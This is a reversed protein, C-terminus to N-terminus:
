GHPGTGASVHDSGVDKAGLGGARCLAALGDQSTGTGGQANSEVLEVELQRLEEAEPHTEIWHRLLIQCRPGAVRCYEGAFEVLSRRAARRGFRDFYAAAMSNRRGIERPREMALSRCSEGDAGSSLVAPWTRCSRTISPICRAKPTAAHVVGLPLVEHALAGAFSRVGSRRLSAKFDPQEAASSATTTSLRAKRKFGLLMLDVDNTRWVAVHDFVEAFTRLM